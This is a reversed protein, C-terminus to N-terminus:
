PPARHASRVGDVAQRRRASHADCPEFAAAENFSEQLWELAQEQDMSLDWPMDEPQAVHWPTDWFVEIGNGKPDNFYISLATGHSRPRVAALARSASRTRQDSASAGDATPGPCARRFPRRRGSRLTLALGIFSWCGISRRIASRRAAVAPVIAQVAGVRRDRVTDAPPGTPGQVGFHVGWNLVPVAKVTRWTQKAVQKSRRARGISSTEDNETEIVVSGLGHVSPESLVMAVESPVTEFGVQMMSQTAGDPSRHACWLHSPGRLWPLRERTWHRRASNESEWRDRAYSEPASCGM